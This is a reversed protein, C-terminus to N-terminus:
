RAKLVHLITASGQIRAGGLHCHEIHSNPGPVAVGAKECIGPGCEINGPCHQSIWTGSSGGLCGEQLYFGERVDSMKM